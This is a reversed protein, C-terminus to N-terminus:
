IDWKVGGRFFYGFYNANINFVGSQKYWTDLYLTLNSKPKYKM